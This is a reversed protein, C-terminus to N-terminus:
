SKPPLSFALSILPDSMPDTYDPPLFFFPKQGGRRDLTRVFAHFLHNRHRDGDSPLLCFFCVPLSYFHPRLRRSSPPPFFSLIPNLLSTPLWVFSFYFLPPLFSYIFPAVSSSSPALGTAKRKGRARKKNRKQNPRQEGSGLGRGRLPLLCHKLFTKTTAYRYM